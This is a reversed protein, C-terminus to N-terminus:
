RRPTAGLVVCWDSPRIKQMSMRYSLSISPYNKQHAGYPPFAQREEFKTHRNFHNGGEHTERRGMSCTLPPIM